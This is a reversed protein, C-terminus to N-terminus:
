WVILYVGNFPSVYIYSSSHLSNMNQGNVMSWEGNVIGAYSLVLINATAVM